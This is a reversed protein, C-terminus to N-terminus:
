LQAVYGALRSMGDPPTWGTATVKALDLASHRPRPATARGAAFEQTSCRTVDTASRGRLAFIAQALDAWSFVPGGNTLNYTGYPAGTDILHAIGAALDDAFTLRGFQDDVVSPSVGRDALDSMTRVFNPGDGVVWSTRVVYSRACSTAAIDGAAKSQGYVGLPSLPEDETHTERTGDFVYDTSVHVLTARHENAVAALTAVAGANVAWADRRGADSEALDVATYAAANIVVDYDAWPLSRVSAPDTLDIDPRDIPDAGPMIRRLARGLQGDGGVILRRRPAMPSVQALRPHARDAA